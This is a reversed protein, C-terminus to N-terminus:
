NDKEYKAMKIIYNNDNYNNEIWLEKYKLRRINWESTETVILPGFVQYYDSKGMHINDCRVDIYITITKKNINFKGWYDINNNCNLLGFSLPTKHEILFYFKGGCSDNYLQTADNGNITVNTVEWKGSLRTLPSRFSILPGDPYKKCGTITFLVLLYLLISKKM